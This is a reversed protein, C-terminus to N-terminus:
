EKHHAWTKRPLYRTIGLSVCVMGVMVVYAFNGGLVNHKLSFAFLWDAAAPGVASQISTAVQALGNAAGLSRKNPVASSIYLYVTAYGMESVCLSSLQLIVLLWVITNSSDGAAGRLALNEFPFMIYIMACAIINSIFVNRPGFRGVLNSFFAFQFIGNMGGYVSLRLGISAPSLNLGGFEVPTSWVLPIYTTAVMNLLAFMAHNVITVIVPKTLVSRLPLPKEPGNPPLDVDTVDNAEGQLADSNDRADHHQVKLSPRSNITEELYLALIIFSLCTFAASVLCPLFYPYDAWFRHSFTNPWRDQPRSLVGGILPGIVFGLSWAVPPISFGQAINTEDTLEAIMSKVAGIHGKVAGHLCRSLVLALFSHSLGFLLISLATGALCSLLVPKRGIHDSLRNWQFSTAAEAVYHLSVIIGTYYGVKRADGGVNPLERLLQNLYPSISHSLISEALWATLLISIQAIPLPKRTPHPAQNPFLPTEEDVEHNEEFRTPSM